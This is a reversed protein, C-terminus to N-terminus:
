KDKKEEVLVEEPEEEKVEEEKLEKKSVKEAPIEELKEDESRAEDEPQAEEVIEESVVEATEIAGTKKEGKDEMAGDASSAPKVDFSSEEKGKTKRVRHSSVDIKKGEVVKKSVLINHVVDTPQAGNAIWHKIRDEKLETKKQRPNYFGVKEVYLRTKPGRRSDVVVVRYSPDHKRGVRLLKIKLM